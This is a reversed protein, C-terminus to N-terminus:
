FFFVCNEDIFVVVRRRLIIRNKKKKLYTSLYTKSFKM